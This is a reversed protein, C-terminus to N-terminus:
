KIKPVQLLKSPNFYTLAFDQVQKPTVKSLRKIASGFGDDYFVDINLMSALGYNSETAMILERCFREKCIEIEEQSVDDSILRNLESLTCDFTEPLLDVSTRSLFSVYGCDAFKYNQMGYSYIHSNQIKLANFVRSNYQGFLLDTAVFAQALLPDGYGVSPLAMGFIIDDSETPVQIFGTSPVIAENFEIQEDFKPKVRGFTNNLLDPYLYNTSGVISLCIGKPNYNRSHINSLIEPTMSEISDVNGITPRRLSYPLDLQEIFRQHIIDGVQVSSSAIERLIKARIEDVFEPSFNPEFVSLALLRITSPLNHAQTDISIRTWEPGTEANIRDGRYSIVDYLSRGNLGRIPSEMIIHELFHCGGFEGQRESRAGSPIMLNVSVFPSHKSVIQTRLGNPLKYKENTDLASTALRQLSSQSGSFSSDSLEFQNFLQGQSPEKSWNYYNNRDETKQM